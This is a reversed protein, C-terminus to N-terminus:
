KPQVDQNGGPTGPPPIVPTSQAGTRPPPVVSQDGTAPPTIVGESRFLEQDLPKPAGDRPRSSSGSLDPPSSEPAPRAQEQPAPNQSQAAASGAALALAAALLMMSAVTRM